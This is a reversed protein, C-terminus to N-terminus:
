ARLKGQARLSDRAAIVSKAGLGEDLKMVQDFDSSLAAIWQQTESIMDETQKLLAKIEPLNTTGPSRDARELLAKIHLLKDRLYGERLSCNKMLAHVATRIHLSLREIEHLTGSSEVNLKLEDLIEEVAREKRTFRRECRGVYTYDRLAKKIDALKDKKKARDIDAALKRLDKSVTTLYDHEAAVWKVAQTIKRQDSKVDIPNHGPVKMTWQFIKTAWDRILKVM